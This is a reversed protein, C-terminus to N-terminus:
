PRPTAIENRMEHDRQARELQEIIVPAQDPVYPSHGAEVGRRVLDLAHEVHVGHVLHSENRSVRIRYLQSQDPDDAAVHASVFERLSTSKVHHLRTVRAPNELVDLQPEVQQGINNRTESWLWFVRGSDAEDFLRAIQGDTTPAQDLMPSAGNVMAFSGGLARLRMNFPEASRPDAIRAWTSRLRDAAKEASEIGEFAFVYDGVIYLTKETM